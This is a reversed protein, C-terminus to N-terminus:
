IKLTCVDAILNKLYQDNQKSWMEPDGSLLEVGATDAHEGFIGIDGGLRLVIYVKSGDVIEYEHLTRRDQLQQGLFVIRQQDPPIGSVIM